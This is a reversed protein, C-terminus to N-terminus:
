ESSAKRKLAILYARDRYRAFREDPINQLDIKLATLFQRHEEEERLVVLSNAVALEHPTTGILRQGGNLEWEGQLRKEEEQRLLRSVVLHRPPRPPLPDIPRPNPPCVRRRVSRVPPFPDAPRPIPPPAHWPPHLPDARPAGDDNMTNTRRVPRPNPPRVLRYVSGVPPFPDAPRPIPPPAHRPPHLPHARPAGDDNM